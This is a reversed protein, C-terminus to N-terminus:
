LPRSRSAHPVRGARHADAARHLAARCQHQAAWPGSAGPGFGGRLQLRHGARRQACPTTRAKFGSRTATGSASRNCPCASPNAPAQFGYIAGHPPYRRRGPRRAPRDAGRLRLGGRCVGHQRLEQQEPAPVARVRRLQRRGALAAVGAEARLGAPDPQTHWLLGIDTGPMAVLAGDTVVFRGPDDRGPQNRITSMQWGATLRRRLAGHLGSRTAVAHARRPPRGAPPGPRDRHADPEALRGDPLAGARGRVHQARRPLKRTPTPSRPPRSAGGCALTGAEHHTTGLGDPAGASRVAAGDRRASGGCRNSRRRAAGAGRLAARQRVGLGRRRRSHDMAAWLDHDDAGPNLAVFARPLQFEDLEGALTVRPHPNHPGCRASAASPSSSGTMPSTNSGTSPTWM